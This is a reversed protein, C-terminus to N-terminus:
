FNYTVSLSGFRPNNKQTEYQRTSAVASILFAWNHVSFAVGTVFQAQLHELAVSHSDEFTNGDLLINNAVVNGLINFFMSWASGDRNGALPNVERGPTISATAFNRDLAHGFRLSFGGSLDSQLTGLSAGSIGILDFGIFNNEAHALRWLREASIQFVMENKLQTDWGQPQESSTAKHIFRQTAKAGSVPGVFGLSLSFRDAIRHDYAYLNAQWLIIGAYPAEDKNIRRLAINNGTQMGQAIMYSIARQKGPMTSIYLNNTLTNIWPAINDDTFQDFGGYAWSVAVGNTYGGDQGAFIDNEWTVTLFDPTKAAQALASACLLMILFHRLVFRM